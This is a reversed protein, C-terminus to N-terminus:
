QEKSEIQKIADDAFAWIDNINQGRFIKVPQTIVEGVPLGDENVAKIIFQVVVEQCQRTM